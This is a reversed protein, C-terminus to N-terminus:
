RIPSRLYVSVSRTCAALRSEGTTLTRSPSPSRPAPTAGCQVGATFVCPCDDRQPADQAVPGLARYLATVRAQKPRDRVQDDPSPPRFMPPAFLHSTTTPTCGYDSEMHRGSRVVCTCEGWSDQMEVSHTVSGTSLEWLKWSRDAGATALAAGDNSIAVEFVRGLTSLSSKLTRTSLPSLFSSRMAFLFQTCCFSQLRGGRVRHTCADGHAGEGHIGGGAACETREMNGAGADALGRKERSSVKM